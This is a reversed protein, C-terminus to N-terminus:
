SRQAWHTQCLVYIGKRYLLYAVSAPAIGTLAGAILDVTGAVITANEQKEYLARIATSSCVSQQFKPLNLQFWVKAKEIIQKPSLVKFHEDAQLVENGLILYLEDDTLNELATNTM